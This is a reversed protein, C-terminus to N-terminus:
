KGRRAKIAKYPTLDPKFKNKVYNRDAQFINATRELGKRSKRGEVGAKERINIMANLKHYVISPGYKHVAKGLAIHRARAPKKTSYGFKTLTGRQKIKIVKPGRGKAGVDKIIMYTTPVEAGKVHTGDERTYPSRKFSERRVLLKGAPAKCEGYRWHGGIDRCVEPNMRM